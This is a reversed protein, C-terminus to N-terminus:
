MCISEDWSPVKAATISSPLKSRAAWRNRIVGDATLWRIL